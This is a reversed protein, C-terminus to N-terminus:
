APPPTREAPPAPPPPPRLAGGATGGAAPSGRRSLFPAITRNPARTQRQRAVPEVLQGLAFPLIHQGHGTADELDFFDILMSMGQNLFPPLTRCAFCAIAM